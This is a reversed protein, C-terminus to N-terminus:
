MEECSIETCELTVMEIDDYDLYPYLNKMLELTATMPQPNPLSSTYIGVEGNFPELHIFEIPEKKTRLAKFKM